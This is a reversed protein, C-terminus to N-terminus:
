ALSQLLGRAKHWTERYEDDPDSQAVIGGGVPLQWWGQCATITRILISAQMAGNFGIYGLSGCYPGRATPELEAIVQMARIKPAGTISGGPFAGRLLDVPGCEPRLTGAVTSVLHQVYAYSELGCLQEVRVSDALCVRSLDNRMLDVIMVNEARDKESTILEDGAFLDAEPRLMRGRTGKIPRTEVRRGSLALFSEPSASAIQIQGLDFYGAYPAPNRDRLRLYLEASSTAAPALLRQALNVQFLDGARIYEVAREVMQRYGQASLNSTVGHAGVDFQPALAARPTPPVRGDQTPAPATRLWTRFEASRARARELRARPDAEPFGQSVIWSKGAAHDFALVVDYGGLALAPCPLDDHRPRPLRELSGALDYSLLGALGGQFPPADPRAGAHYRDCFSAVAALPDAGGVCAEIWEFPEAAVYSYRGIGPDRLASDLFLLGRRGALRRFAAVPDVGPPGPEVLPLLDDPSTSETM